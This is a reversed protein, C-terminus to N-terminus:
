ARPEGRGALERELVETVLGSVSPRGGEEAAREDALRRLKVWLAVPVEISTRVKRDPGFGKSQTTFTTVREDDQENMDAEV